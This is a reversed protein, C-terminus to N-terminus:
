HTIGTEIPSPAPHLPDIYQYHQAYATDMGDAFGDGIISACLGTPAAVLFATMDAGVLTRIAGLWIRHSDTALAGEYLADLFHDFPEPASADVYALQQAPREVSRDNVLM